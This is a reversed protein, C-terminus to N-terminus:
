RPVDLAGCALPGKEHMRCFPRGPIAPAMCSTGEAKAGTCDGRAKNTGDDGPCVFGGPVVDRPRQPRLEAWELAPIWPSASAHDCRGCIRHLTTEKPEVDPPRRNAHVPSLTRGRRRRSCAVIDSSGSRPYIIVVKDGSFTVDVSRALPRPLHGSHAEQLWCSGGAHM